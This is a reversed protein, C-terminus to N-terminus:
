PTIHGNYRVLKKKRSDNRGVCYLALNSCVAFGAATHLITLICVAMSCVSWAEWRCNVEHRIGDSQHSGVNGVNELAGEGMYINM